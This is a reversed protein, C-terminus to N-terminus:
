VMFDDGALIEVTPIWSRQQFREFAVLRKTFIFFHLLFSPLFFYDIWVIAFVYLIHRLQADHFKRREVSLETALNQERARLVM